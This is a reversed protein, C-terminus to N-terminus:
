RWAAKEARRGLRPIVHLVCRDHDDTEQNQGYHRLNRYRASVAEYPLCVYGVQVEMGLEARSQHLHDQLLKRM